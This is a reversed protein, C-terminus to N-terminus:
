IKKIIFTPAHMHKKNEEQGEYTHPGYWRDLRCGVTFGRALLLSCASYYHSGEPWGGRKKYVHLGSMPALWAMWPGELGRGRRLRGIGTGGRCPAGGGDM